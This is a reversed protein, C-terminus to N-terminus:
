ATCVAELQDVTQAWGQKAGNAYPKTEPTMVTFWQRATLFTKKGRSEFTVVTQVQRKPGNPFEGEWSIKEPAVIERYVATFPYEVGTPSRMTLSFEGGPRFDIKCNHTTFPAPAFWRSLQKAESWAAFVRERPADIERTTVIEFAPKTNTTM